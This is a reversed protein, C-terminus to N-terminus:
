DPGLSAPFIDVGLREDQEALWDSVAPMSEPGRYGEHTKLYDVVAKVAERRKGVIRAHVTTGGSTVALVWLRQKKNKPSMRGHQVGWSYAEDCTACLARKQDSPRDVSVAVVKAAENECLPNECYKEMTCDEPQNKQSKFVEPAIEALTKPRWRSDRLVPLGTPSRLTVLDSLWFYDLQRREAQALGYLLYDVAQGDPDRRASGETIFWTRSGDAMSCKAIAKAQGGLNQRSGLIPLNERIAYPLLKLGRAKNEAARKSIAVIRNDGPGDQGRNKM